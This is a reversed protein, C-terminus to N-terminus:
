KSAAQWSLEFMMRMTKAYDENEIVIALPDKDPCSIIIVKNNYVWYGTDFQKKIIRYKLLKTTVPVEDILLRVKIGAQIRREVWHPFYYTLMNLLGKKPSLALFEKTEVLVDELVTKLGEKGEYMTISPKTKVSQRLACMEPLVEKMAKEKEKLIHLFKKPPAAEFYKKRDKIVSSILGKESLSDLIEYTLTRHTNSRKAISTATASGLELAAIYVNIENNNLGFQKLAKRM